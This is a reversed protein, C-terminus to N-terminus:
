GFLDIGEGCIFPGSIGMGDPKGMRADWRIVRMDWGGSYFINPNDLSCKICYVRSTHGPPYLEEGGFNHVKKKTSEDYIKVFPESGAVAFKTSDM